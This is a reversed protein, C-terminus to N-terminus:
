ENKPNLSLSITKLCRCTLMYECKDILLTLHDYFHVNRSLVVTKLLYNILYLMGQPIDDYIAIWRAKRHGKRQKLNDIDTVDHGWTSINKTRGCCSCKRLMFCWHYVDPKRSTLILLALSGKTAAMKRKHDFIMWRFKRKLFPWNKEWGDDWCVLVYLRLVYTIKRERLITSLRM